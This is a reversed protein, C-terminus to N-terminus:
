AAQKKIQKRLDHIEELTAVLEVEYNVIGEDVEEITHSCDDCELDNCVSHKLSGKGEHNISNMLITSAKTEQGEDLYLDKLKNWIDKASVCQRVRRKVNDPLLELIIEKSKSIYSRAEKQTKLKVKKPPVYGNVISSWLDYGISQLYWTMKLSWEAYINEDFLPTENKSYDM